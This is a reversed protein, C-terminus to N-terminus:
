QVTFTLGTDVLAPDSVGVAHYCADSTTTALNLIYFECDDDTYPGIKKLGSEIIKEKSCLMRVAYDSSINGTILDLDDVFLFSTTEGTESNTLDQYYSMTIGTSYKPYASSGMEGSVSHNVQLFAETGTLQTLADMEEATAIYPTDINVTLSGYVSNTGLTVSTECPPFYESGDQIGGFSAYTSSPLATPHFLTLTGTIKIGNGSEPTTDTDNDPVTDNDSAPDSDDVPEETDDVPEETDDVPEETDDAPEGSDPLETDTPEPDETNQDPLDSDANDEPDTTSNGSDKCSYSGSATQRCYEGFNINCNKKTQWSYDLCVMIQSGDPSCIETGEADCSGGLADPVDDESCSVIFLMAAAAFLAFLIKKM